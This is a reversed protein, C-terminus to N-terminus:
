KIKKLFELIDNKMLDRTEKWEKVLLGLRKEDLEFMYSSRFLHRFARMRNLILFSRQTLVSPRIDPVEIQMRELMEKHWSAPNEIRNEFCRAIKEFIDEFCSYIGSITYAISITSTEKEKIKEFDEMKKELENIRNLLFYVEGKLTQIVEFGKKNM